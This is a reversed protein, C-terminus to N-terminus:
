TGLVARSVAYRKQRDPWGNPFGNKNKGNVRVSLGLYDGSDAIENCGNQTWWWASGRAADMPRELWEPHGVYDIQLGQSLARYNARGTIQILGRGRYRYGDGPQINGLARKGEYRRQAATPGWRERTYLFGQSEHGLTAIFMAARLPSIIAFEMMAQEIAVCWRAARPEPLLAAQAFITPHM